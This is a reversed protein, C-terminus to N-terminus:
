SRSRPRTSRSAAPRRPWCAAWRAPAFRDDGVTAAVADKADRPPAEHAPLRSADLIAVVALSCVLRHAIYCRTLGVVLQRRESQGARRRHAAKSLVGQRDLQIAQRDVLAAPHVKVGGSVGAVIHVRNVIRYNIVTDVEKPAEGLEVAFAQPNGFCTMHWGVRETLGEEQM